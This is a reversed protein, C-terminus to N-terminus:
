ALDIMGGTAIGGFSGRVQLGVDKAVPTLFQYQPVPAIRGVEVDERGIDRSNVPKGGQHVVMDIAHAHCPLIHSIILWRM